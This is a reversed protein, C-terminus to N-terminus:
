VIKIIKSFLRATAISDGLASHRNAVEINFYKFAADSSSVDEKLKDAYYLFKLISATDIFRHTFFDNFNMGYDCLFKKLFNIDFNTNHGGLVIKGLYDPFNHNLFNMLEEIANAPSIANEIFAILDIKNTRIAEPTINFIDHKILIEKKSVIEGDVWAVLGISLLSAKTPDLGGTETDIFLIKKKM